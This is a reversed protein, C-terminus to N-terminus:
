RVVGKARLEEARTKCKECTALHAYELPLWHNGEPWHSPTDPHFMCLSLGSHLVHVTVDAECDAVTKRIYEEYVKDGGPDTMECYGHHSGPTGGCDPCAYPHDPPSAMSEALRLAYEVHGVDHETDDQQLREIVKAGRGLMVDQVLSDAEERSLIVTM